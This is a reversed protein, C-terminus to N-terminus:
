KIVTSLIGIIFVISTLGGTWYVIKNHNTQVRDDIKDFRSDHSDIRNEIHVLQQSIKANSVLVNKVETLTEASQEHLKSHFSLQSEIRQVKQAVDQSVMIPGM